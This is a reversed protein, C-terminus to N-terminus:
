WKLCVAAHRGAVVWWQVRCGGNRVDLLLIKKTRAVAEEGRGEGWGRPGSEGEGEREGEGEEGRQMQDIKSRWEAPSLPTAACLHAYLQEMGGAVQRHPLLPSSLSSAGGARPVVCPVTHHLCSFVLCGVQVLAPKYRLRLRPFAHGIPSLSLQVLAPKYRLRLRPFAHGIPSPSLQLPVGAFRPDSRVWHAYDMVHSAPGSLQAPPATHTHICTIHHPSSRSFPSHSPSDPTAACQAGVQVTPGHWTVGVDAGGVGTSRDGAGGGGMGWAEGAGAQRVQETIGRHSVQANIGQHSIYIRGRIDREQCVCVRMRVHPFALHSIPLCAPFPLSLTFPPLPFVSHLSRRQSLTVPSASLQACWMPWQLFAHHREVDGHADEVDAFHYFNLVLFPEGQASGAADAAEAAGGDRREASGEGSPAAASSEPTSVSAASDHAQARCARRPRFASLLAPTGRRSCEAPFSPDRTFGTRAHPASPCRPFCGAPTIIAPAVAFCLRSALPLAARALLPSALGTPFPLAQATRAPAASPAAHRPALAAAHQQTGHPRSLGRIVDAM